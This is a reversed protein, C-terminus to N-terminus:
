IATSVEEWKEWEEEDEDEDPLQYSPPSPPPPPAAVVRDATCYWVDGSWGIGGHKSVRGRWFHTLVAIYGRPITSYKEIWTSGGGMVHRIIVITELYPIIHIMNLNQTDCIYRIASNGLIFRVYM